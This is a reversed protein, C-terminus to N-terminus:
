GAQLFKFYKAEIVDIELDEGSDSDKITEPANIQGQNYEKGETFLILKEMDSDESYYPVYFSKVVGNEPLFGAIMNIQDVIVKPCNKYVVQVSSNISSIWKIWERIGCSNIAHVSDFDIELCGVGNLDLDELTVDEDMNGKLHMTWTDGKKNIMYEFQAM